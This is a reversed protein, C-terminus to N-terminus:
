RLRQPRLASSFEGRLAETLSLRTAQLAPVLGSGITAAAAALLLFLLVNGDLTLPALRLLPGFTSPLTSVLLLQAGRVTFFAVTYAMAGALAALLLGESLLQRILRGRSAGIALRVGIERQRRIARALMMNAANACCIVLVLVFAGILPSFVALMRPNMPLQ